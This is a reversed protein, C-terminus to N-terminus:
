RTLSRSFSPLRRLSVAIFRSILYTVTFGALTGPSEALKAESNWENPTFMLYRPVTKAKDVDIGKVLCIFRSIMM